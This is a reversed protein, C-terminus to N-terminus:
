REPGRVGGVTLLRTALREIRRQLEPLEAAAEPYEEALTVVDL